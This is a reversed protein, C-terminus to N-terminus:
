KKKKQFTEIQDYLSDVTEKNFLQHRIEQYDGEGVQWSAWFRAAKAPSLHQMLVQAAEQIIQRESPVHITTM